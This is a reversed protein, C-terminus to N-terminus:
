QPLSQISFSARLYAKTLFRRVVIKRKLPKNCNRREYDPFKHSAFQPFYIEQSMFGYWFPTINARIVDM